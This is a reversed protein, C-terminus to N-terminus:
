PLLEFRYQGVHKLKPRDGPSLGVSRLLETIKTTRQDPDICKTLAYLHRVGDRKGIPVRWSVGAVILDFHEEHNPFLHANEKGICLELRDGSRARDSHSAINTIWASIITEGTPVPQGVNEPSRAASLPAGDTTISPSPWRSSSTGRGPQPAGEEFLIKDLVKLVSPSHPDYHQLRDLVETNAIVVEQIRACFKAYDRVHDGSRRFGLAAEARSDLIPFTSPNLFHLFKSAWVIWFKSADFPRLLHALTQTEPARQMLSTQNRALKLYNELTPLLSQAIRTSEAEYGGPTSRAQAGGYSQGIFRVLAIVDSLGDTPSVKRFLRYGAKDLELNRRGRYTGQNYDDIRLKSSEFDLVMM